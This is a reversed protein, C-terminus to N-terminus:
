NLLYRDNGGHPNHCMMCNADGIGDHVPNKIVDSKLHCHSCLEQEYATLETKKSNHKKHCASCYQGAVPGHVFKYEIEFDTHCKYCTGNILLFRNSSGHPSHCETCSEASASVHFKTQLIRNSDHCQFCLEDKKFTLLKEYKSKHPNHCFYCGSSVAPGHTYKLKQLVAEHCSLCITQESTNFTAINNEAHCDKCKRELYPAHFYTKEKLIQYESIDNQVSDKRETNQESNAIITSDQPPVGDFFFNLARFREQPSCASLIISLVVAVPLGAKILKFLTRRTKESILM